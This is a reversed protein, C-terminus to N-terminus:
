EDYRSLELVEIVTILNKVYDPDNTYGAAKLGRAWAKYDKKGLERLKKFRPSSLRLSHQRFSEWPTKFAQYMGDSGSEIFSKCTCGQCDPQCPIAFHNKFERALLNDGANSELLAQALTISAPIGFKKQEMRATSAFREVYARCRQKKERVTAPAIGKGEATRPDLLLQLNSHQNDVPLAGDYTSSVMLAEKQQMGMMAKGQQNTTTEVSHVSVQIRVEKFLFLHLVFFAVFGNFWYRGAFSYLRPLWSAKKGRINESRDRKM